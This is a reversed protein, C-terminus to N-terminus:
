SPVRPIVISLTTGEDPASELSISGGHEDAIRECLALGIGSRGPRTSFFLDFALPLADPPIPPGGNHLRCCWGGDKRVASMLRLDSGEPAAEIANALVNGFLQAIKSADINCSARPEAPTYQVVLAKSELPGRQSALVDEWIRDPDGPTLRTPAPRGYELLASVMGNMREVERLIRGLNKEVVPDEKVRYRLLQAASSIGFLPHRMQHAVGAAMDGIADLRSKRAARRAHEVMALAGAAETTVAAVTHRIEDRRLPRDADSAVVTVAGWPEGTGIPATLEIVGSALEREVTRGGSMAERWAGRLANEVESPEQDFGMEHTLHVDDSRTAVLAIAVADCPISRRLCRSLEAVVRDSTMPNVLSLASEGLADLFSREIGAAITM